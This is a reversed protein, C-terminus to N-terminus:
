PKQSTDVKKWSVIRFQGYMGGNIVRYSGVGIRLGADNLIQHITDESVLSTDLNAQFQVLWNDFRPRCIAIAGRLANNGIQIDTEFETLQKKTEPNLLPFYMAAPQFIAAAIGKMSKRSSHSQKYESSAAKFAGLMFSAPFIYGKDDKWAHAEAQDKPPIKTKSTRKTEKSGYILKDREAESMKHQLLPRTGLIEFEFLEM